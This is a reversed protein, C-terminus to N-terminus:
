IVGIKRLMRKTLWWPWSAAVMLLAITLALVELKPPLPSKAVQEKIRALQQKGYIASPYYMVLFLYIVAGTLYISVLSDVTM